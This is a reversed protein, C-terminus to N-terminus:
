RRFLEPFEGRLPALIAAAAATDGGAAAARALDLRASVPDCGSPRFAAALEAGRAGRMERAL